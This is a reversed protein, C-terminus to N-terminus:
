MGETTYVCGGKIYGHFEKGYKRYWFLFPKVPKFFGTMGCGNIRMDILNDNLWVARCPGYHGPVKSALVSGNIARIRRIFFLAFVAGIIGLYIWFFYEM